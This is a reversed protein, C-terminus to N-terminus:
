VDGYDIRTVMLWAEAGATGGIIKYPLGPSTWVTLVAASNWIVDEYLYWNGELKHQLEWTGGAHNQLSIQIREGDLTFVKSETDTSELVKRQYAM